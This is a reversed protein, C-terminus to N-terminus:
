DLPLQHIADPNRGNSRDGCAGRCNVRCRCPRGVGLRLGIEDNEDGDVLETSPQEVLPAAAEFGPELTQHIFANDVAAGILRMAQGLCAGAVGRHEGSLVRASGADDGVLPEIGLGPVLDIADLRGRETRRAIGLAVNTWRIQKRRGKAVPPAGEEQSKV